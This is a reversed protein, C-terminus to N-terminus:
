CPDDAAHVLVDAVLDELEIRRRAGEIARARVTEPTWRNKITAVRRRITAMDLFKEEGDTTAEARDYNEISRYLQLTSM